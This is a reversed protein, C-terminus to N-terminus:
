IKNFYSMVVNPVSFTGNAVQLNEMICGIMTPLSAITAEIIHVYSEPKKGTGYKIMLRKSIFDTCASIHGTTVFKNEHPSWLEYEMRLHEASSLKNSGVQIIRFPLNIEKYCQEILKSLRYFQNTSESPHSSILCKVVVDQLTSFLSEATYNKIPKYLHGVTFYSLPLSSKCTITRALPAIFSQLSANGTVYFTLGENEVTILQKIDEYMKGCGELIVMKCFDPGIVNIFGAKTLCNSFYNTLAFELKAAKDSLYYSNFPAFKLCQNYKGIEAHSKIPFSFTNPCGHEQIIKKQLLVDPHLKNPIRLLDPIADDELDWLEESLKRSIIRLEKQKNILEEYKAPSQSTESLKNLENRVQAERERNNKVKVKLRKIRKLREVLFQVDITIGRAQVLERIKDSNEIIYNPELRPSVALYVSSANRGSCLLQSVFGNKTSESSDLSNAKIQNQATCIYILRTKFCFQNRIKRVFKIVSSIIM